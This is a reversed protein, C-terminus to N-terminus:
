GWTSPQSWIGIPMNEVLNDSFAKIRSLSSAAARYSQTLFLLMIGALGIFLLILGMVINHHTDSKGAEDIFRMDLGIFITLSSPLIDQRCVM